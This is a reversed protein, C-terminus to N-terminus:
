KFPLRITPRVKPRDWTGKLALPIPPLTPKLLFDLTGDLSCGGEVGIAFTPNGLRFPQTKVRGKSISFATRFAEFQTPRGLVAKDLRLSLLPLILSGHVSVQHFDFHGRGSLSTRLDAWSSGDAALTAEGDVRGKLHRETRGADLRLVPVILSLPRGLDESLKVNKAQFSTRWRTPAAVGFELDGTISGENVKAELGTLRVTKGDSEFRGRADTWRVPGTVLRAFSLDGDRLRPFEKGRTRGASQIRVDALDAAGAHVERCQVQTRFAVGKGAGDARWEGAGTADGRLGLYRASGRQAEEATVVAAVTVDKWDDGRRNAEVRGSVTAERLSADRVQAQGVRLTGEVKVPGDRPEVPVVGKADLTFRGEGSVDPLYRALAGFDGGGEVEFEAAAGITGHGKLSARDLTLQFSSVDTTDDKHKGKAVLLARKSREDALVFDTVELRTDFATGAGHVLDATLVAAGQGRDLDLLATMSELPGSVKVFATTKDPAVLARPVEIDLGHGDLRARTVTVAWGEDNQVVEGSVTAREDRLTREGLPAVLNTVDLDGRAWWRAHAYRAEVRGRVAGSSGAPLGFETLASLSFAPSFTGGWGGEIQKVAGTLGLGGSADIEAQGAWAETRAMHGRVTVRDRAFDDVRLGTVDVLGEIRVNEGTTRATLDVTATGALRELGALPAAFPPVDVTGKLEGQAEHVSGDRFHVTGKGRLEDLEATRVVLTDGHGLLDADLEVVTFARRIEEATWGTAVLDTLELRGAAKVDGAADRHLTARGAVGGALAGDGAEPVFPRVLPFIRGLDAELTRVDVDFVFPRALTTRGAANLRCAPADVFLKRVEIDANTATVDFAVDLDEPARKLKPDSFVLGALGLTGALDWRGDGIRGTVSATAVGDAPVDGTVAFVHRLPLRADATFGGADGRAEVDITDSASRIEARELAIGGDARKAVVALTLWDESLGPLRPGAVRLNEFRATADLEGRSDGKVTVDVRGAVDADLLPALWALDLGEAEVRGRAGDADFRLDGDVRGREDDFVLGGRFKAHTGDPGSEFDLDLAEVGLVM